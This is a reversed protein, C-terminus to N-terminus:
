RHSFPRDAMWDNVTKHIWTDLGEALYFKPLLLDDDSSIVGEDVATKALATNPYIRIGISVKLADLSLSDAFALSEEVTEKTEGPGGLLLFGARRIGSEKLRECTIRVDDLKFRKNMRQLVTESGSEFGVCAETCGSRAMETSLAKDIELPYLICQWTIGLDAAAIKACLARAYSPPLNFTNDVFFFQNFGADNYSRIEQVVKEPPRKRIRRGEITATSCYSCDLPCGRRTQIPLWVEQNKPLHATLVEIDPFPLRGLEKRFQRSGQLGQDPLYLCPFGSLSGGMQLRGLLAPFAEEGEGQIGMDAGLYALTGEPYISYGAGGLVIKADSLRRCHSIVEKIPGLLFKKNDMSQDDINRVSVGIIDPDFERVIKELAVHPDKVAKLDLMEVTHGAERTAAAVWALGLPPTPLAIEETVASIFLVKM